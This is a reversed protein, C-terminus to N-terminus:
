FWPQNGEHPYRATVSNFADVLETKLESLKTVDYPIYRSNRIDFPVKGDDQTIVIVEKGLAHALGIEYFVNPNNDTIDALVVDAVRIGQWIQDLIPGPTLQELSVIAKFGTKEAALSIKEKVQGFWEPGYPMAVFCLRPDGADRISQSLPFSFVYDPKPLNALQDEISKM